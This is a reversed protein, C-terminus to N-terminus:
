KLLDSAAEFMENSMEPNAKMDIKDAINTLTDCISIAEDKEFKRVITSSSAEDDTAIATSEIEEGDSTKVTVAIEPQVSSKM